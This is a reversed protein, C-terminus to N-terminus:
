AEMSLDDHGGVERRKDWIKSIEWATCPKKKGKGASKGGECNKRKKNKEREM